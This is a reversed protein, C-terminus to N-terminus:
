REIRPKCSEQQALCTIQKNRVIINESNDHSGRQNTQGKKEQNYDIKQHGIELDTEEEDTSAMKKVMLFSGQKLKTTFNKTLTESKHLLYGEPFYGKDKEINGHKKRKNPFNQLNIVQIFDYNWVEDDSVYFILM